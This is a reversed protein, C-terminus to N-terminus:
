ARMGRRARWTTHERSVSDEADRTLRPRLREAHPDDLHPSASRVRVPEPEDAATRCAAANAPRVPAAAGLGRGPAAVASACQM